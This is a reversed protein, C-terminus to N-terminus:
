RGQCGSGQELKQLEEQVMKHIQSKATYLSAVKMQLRAAAELGSLGQLATLQFALWRHAAVRAQVQAMAKELLERDFVASLQSELDARAEITELIDLLGSDGSGQGHQRRETLFDSLPGAAPPSCFFLPPFSM